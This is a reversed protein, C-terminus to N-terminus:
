SSLHWLVVHDTFGARCHKLSVKRYEYLSAGGGVSLDYGEMVISMSAVFSWM